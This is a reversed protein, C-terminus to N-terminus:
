IADARLQKRRKTNSQLMKDILEIVKQKTIKNKGKTTKFYNYLDNEAKLQAKELPKFYERNTLQNKPPIVVVHDPKATLGFMEPLQKNKWMMQMVNLRSIITRIYKLDRKDSLSLKPKAAKPKPKSKPKSKPKPKAKQVPPENVITEEFDPANDLPENDDEVNEVPQIIAKKVIRKKPVIAKEKIGEWYKKGYSCRIEENPKIDRLAVLAATKRETHYVLEANNKCQSRCDNAYRGPGSDTRSSDIYTPPHEKIQLAYPNAYDKDYTVVRDGTYRCIDAGKKIPKTTYLGQGAGPLKSKMIRLGQLAKLHQWCYKSKTTTHKCRTNLGRRRTIAICRNTRKISGQKFM